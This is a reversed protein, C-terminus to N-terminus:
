RCSRARASLTAAIACSGGLVRDPGFRADLADLHAMGNLIPLVMTDPGVAPAVDDLAGALDYAKCSLLM